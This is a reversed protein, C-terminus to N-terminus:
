LDFDPNEKCWQLCSRCLCLSVGRHEYRVCDALMSCRDCATRLVVTDGGSTEGDKYNADYVAKCAYCLRLSEEGYQCLVCNTVKLCGECTMRVSGDDAGEIVTARTWKAYLTINEAPMTDFTFARTLAADEYWGGFVYNDKLPAEPAHLKAGAALMMASVPSGGNTEFSVTYNIEAAEPTKDCAALVGLSLLLAFLLCLIKKM